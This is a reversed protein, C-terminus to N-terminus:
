SDRRIPSSRDWIHVTKSFSYLRRRYLRPESFMCSLLYVWPTPSGLHVISSMLTYTSDRASKYQIEALGDGPQQITLEIPHLISVVQRMIIIARLGWIRM